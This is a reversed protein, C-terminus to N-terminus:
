ESKPVALGAAVDAPVTWFHEGTPRHTPLWTSAFSAPQFIIFSPLSLDSRTNYPHTHKAHKAVIPPPLSCFSTQGRAWAFVCQFWVFGGRNPYLFIHPTVTM